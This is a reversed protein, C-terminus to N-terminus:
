HRAGHVAADLAAQLSGAYARSTNTAGSVAHIHASQAAIAERRLVPVARQNVETSRGGVPLRLAVVDVLRGGAVIIRLQVVGHPTREVPGTVTYTGAPLRVTAAPGAPMALAAPGPAPAPVPQRAKAAVLLVTGMAVGLIGLLARRM